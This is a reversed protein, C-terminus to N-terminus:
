GEDLPAAEWKDRQGVVCRESTYHSFHFRLDSAMRSYWQRGSTGNDQSAGKPLITIFLFDFIPRMNTHGFSTDRRGRDVPIPGM